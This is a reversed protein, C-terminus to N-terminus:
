EESRRLDAKLERAEDRLQNFSEATPVRLIGAGDTLAAMQRNHRRRGLSVFANLAVVWVVLGILLGVFWPLDFAWGVTWTGGIVAFGVIAASNVWRAM